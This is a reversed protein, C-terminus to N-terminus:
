FSGLFVIIKPITKQAPRRKQATLVDQCGMNIAIDPRARKKAM